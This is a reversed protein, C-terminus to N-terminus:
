PQRAEPAGGIGDGDALGALVEATHFVKVPAGCRTMRGAATTYHTGGSAWTAITTGTVPHTHAAPFAEYSDRDYLTVAPGTPFWTM